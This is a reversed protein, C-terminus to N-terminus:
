GHTEGRRKELGLMEMVCNHIRPRFAKIKENEHSPHVRNTLFVVLVQRELDMWLSTGTFGLHGVSKESFCDGASSGSRSPTDWGLAWTTDQPERQRTFFTRVTDPQLIDKRIGHYCQLLFDAISSVDEATGFLGAHGAYGGMAYANEDHVEGQLIRNRRPCFETAAFAKKDLHRPRAQEYLFMDELGLPGYWQDLLFEDLKKGTALEIIWELVMFGLDSYLAQSGPSSALPVAMIRDRVQQKRQGPPATDLRSYFPHWDAMGSAHSLLLRPTIMRKDEPVQGPLLEGLTDELSVGGQEVLRMMALTTALPKTLSALDFITGVKMPILRPELAAHGVARFFVRKGKHVVLLVAGPYVHDSVGKALLRDLNESKLAQM